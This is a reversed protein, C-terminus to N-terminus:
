LIISTSQCNTDICLYSSNVQLQLQRVHITMALSENSLVVQVNKEEMWHLHTMVIDHELAAEQVVHNLVIKGPKGLVGIDM